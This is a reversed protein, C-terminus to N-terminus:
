EYSEGKRTLVPPRVLSLLDLHFLEDVPMAALEDVVEKLSDSKENLESLLLKMEEVFEESEWTEQRKLRMLDERKQGEFFVYTLLENFTKPSKNKAYSQLAEFQLLSKNVNLFLKGQFPTGVMLDNPLDTERQLRKVNSRANGLLSNFTGSPNVTFLDRQNDFLFNSMQSFKAAEYLPRCTLTELFMFNGKLVQTVFSYEDVLKYEWNGETGKYDRSFGGSNLVKRLQTDVVVLLDVDSKEHALNNMQSGRLYVACLSEGYKLKLTELAKNLTEKM